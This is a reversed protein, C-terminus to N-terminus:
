KLHVEAALLLGRDDFVPLHVRDGAIQQVHVQQADRHVHAHLHLYRHV